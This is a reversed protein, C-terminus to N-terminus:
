AVVEREQPRTDHIKPWNPFMRTRNASTPEPDFAVRGGTM